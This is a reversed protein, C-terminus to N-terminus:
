LGFESHTQQHLFRIGNEWENANHVVDGSVLVMDPREADLASMLGLPIRDHLDSVHAICVDRPTPLPLHVTRIKM